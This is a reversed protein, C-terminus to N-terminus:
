FKYNYGLRIVQTELYDTSVFYFGDGQVERKIVLTNFLDSGNLFVEGKGQQITKKVGIDMTYRAYIKGQPIIDPALYSGTFQVDVSEPLHFLGNLKISGSNLQQELASFTNEVPYKNDVTFADVTKRYGNLNLSLNAIKGINQSLIVEFGSMYSRGANQFITYILNSPPVTSAIRTITAQTEKHYLSSYLYGQDWNTKYGLEYSSTFQPRLGPNGVKIIEADDYKPFIRIDVENPRDVRRNYFFSLTNNTNIKYALRLNPFPQTYNYGDSKYTVHDPNVDYFIKVYELRLGAEVEFDKNEFVYNGYVAPILESYDAWGGANVDLPSNLGPIFQMNTPIFRYRFKIGTEFRGYKLPQVYDANLDFVNEDSILKFADLGTFTPMVNTFFYKEDERHFTYNLGGNFSRGPQKFKHQWAATATVTTKLEDELFQWLRLRESLDSNFFPEDGEDLIKESSFLGSLTFTNFQDKYWDIGAKGTVINTTRNRNTQQRITDGNEYYRDVFENKNVTKTYLNDAQLFINTKKKRYNLSISPNIKPTAQYQPRMDPYNEKKIWLAGAGLTLGAKGNFGEAVNKKYIINIIGANGNADFKASPNNIIEIREIASAPINDLGRQNGFGTLATQKGDILVAVRDNGRLLVSGEQSITVGPLTQMVQLLSGGSQNVNDSVSFTKKDLTEAVADRTGEVVVENLATVDENLQIIGLDLFSSLKGILISQLYNKYGIYSVELLYNGPKANSITYRGEENTVTGTNFAKDKETLIVVNVYPLNQGSADHIVGSITVSEVQAFTIFSQAILIIVFGFRGM